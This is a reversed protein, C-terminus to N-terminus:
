VMHWVYDVAESLHILIRIAITFHHYICHQLSLATVVTVALILMRAIVTCVVVVVEYFHEDFDFLKINLLESYVLVQNIM